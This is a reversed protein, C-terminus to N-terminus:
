SCVVAALLLMVAVVGAPGFAEGGSTDGEVSGGSSMDLTSTDM